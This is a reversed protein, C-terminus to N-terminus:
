GMQWNGVLFQLAISLCSQNACYIKLETNRKWQFNRVMKFHDKGCGRCTMAQWEDDIPVLKFSRRDTQYGGIGFSSEFGCRNCKAKIRLSSMEGAAVSFHYSATQCKPCLVDKWDDVLNVEDRTRNFAKIGSEIAKLKETLNEIMTKVM